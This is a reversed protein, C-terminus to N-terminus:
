GWAPVKQVQYLIGIVLKQLNTEVKAVNPSTMGRDDTKSGTLLIDNEEPTEEPAAIGHVWSYINVGMSRHHKNEWTGADEATTWKHRLFTVYVKILSGHTDFGPAKDKVGTRSLSSLRLLAMVQRWIRLSFLQRHM